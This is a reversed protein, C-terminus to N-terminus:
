MELLDNIELHMRSFFKMSVHIDHKKHKKKIAVAVCKFGLIVKLISNQFLKLLCFHGVCKLYVLVKSPVSKLLPPCFKIIFNHGRVINLSM